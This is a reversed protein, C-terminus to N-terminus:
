DQLAHCIPGTFGGLPALLTARGRRFAGSYRFIWLPAIAALMGEGVRCSLALVALDRDEDRTLGYLAVALVLATMSTLLSLVVNVRVGSAHQAISALKAATGEAGTAGGFLVLGSVGVAIYFLFTFGALRANTARTM